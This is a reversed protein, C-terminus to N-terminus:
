RKKKLWDTFAESVADEIRQVRCEEMVDLVQAHLEPDIRCIMLGAAEADVASPSPEQSTPRVRKRLYKRITEENLREGNEGRNSSGIYKALDPVAGLHGEDHSWRQITVM